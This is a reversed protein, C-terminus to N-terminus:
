LKLLRMRRTPFKEIFCVAATYKHVIHMFNPYKLYQMFLDIQKIVVFFLKHYNWNFDFICYTFVEISHFVSKEQASEQVGFCSSSIKIGVFLGFALVLISFYRFSNSIFNLSM